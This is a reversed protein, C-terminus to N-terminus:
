PNIVVPNLFFVPQAEGGARRGGPMRAFQSRCWLGPDAGLACARRFFPALQEDSKGAVFFWAHLSKRGSYVGLALPAKEALHALVAAQEDISTGDGEIVLFRRAGTAELSHQSPTGKKTQGHRQLMPSPVIQELLHPNKLEALSRTAFNFKSGVCVLCEPPYLIRLIEATNPADEDCRIPSAEWLDALSFGSACVAEIQERNAQPWKAPRTHAPRHWVIRETRYVKAVADAFERHPDPDRSAAEEIHRLAEAATHGAKRCAWAAQMAWAHVGEGAAPCPPIEARTKM